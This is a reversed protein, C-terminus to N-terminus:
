LAGGARDILERVLARVQNTHQNILQRARGVDGARCAQSLEAHHDVDFKNWWDTDAIARRWLSSIGLRKYM